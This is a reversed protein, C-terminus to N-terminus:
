DFVEDQDNDIYCVYATQNIENLRGQQQNHLRKSSQEGQLIKTSSPLEEDTNTAMMFACPKIMTM